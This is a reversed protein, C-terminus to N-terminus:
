PDPATLESNRIRIGSALLNRVTDKPDLDPVSCIRMSSMATGFIFHLFSPFFVFWNEVVYRIKQPMLVALILFWMM